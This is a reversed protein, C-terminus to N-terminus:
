PLATNIDEKDNLLLLLVVRLADSIHHNEPHQFKITEILEYIQSDSVYEDTRNHLEGLKDIDLGEGKQFNTWFEKHYYSSMLEILQTAPKRANVVNMKLKAHELERDTWEELTESDTRDELKPIEPIFGVQELINIIIETDTMIQLLKHQNESNPDILQNAADIDPIEDFFTGIPVRTRPELSDTFPPQNPKEHGTVATM